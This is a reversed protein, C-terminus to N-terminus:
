LGEYRFAGWVAANEYQRIMEIQATRLAAAPAAGAILARHFAILLQATGTDEVEWLSGVVGAAGAALFSQALGSFGSTRAATRSSGSCASLIVLSHPQLTSMALQEAFLLGSDGASDPALVLHSRGPQDNLFRAHGAFHLIDLSALRSRLATPTARTGVLHVPRHYLQAIRDLEAEAAPLDLRGALVISSAPSFAPAVDPRIHDAGPIMRLTYGEILFRNPAYGPLLAFPVAHLAKDPVILLESVSEEPRISDLLLARLAQGTSAFAISDSGTRALRVFRDVLETVHTNSVAIAHTRITDHSIARILLRDDLLAYEVLMSTRPLRQAAERSALPASETGAPDVSAPHLRSRALYGFATEANGRDYELRILADYTRTRAELFSARLQLDMTSRSELEILAVAQALDASAAAVNGISNQTNSRATLVRILNIPNKQDRFHEVSATFRRIAAPADTSASALGEVFDLDAAVRQRLLTDRVAAFFARAEGIHVSAAAHRGLELESRAVEIRGEIPDSTRATRDAIHLGETHIALMAHPFGARGAARGFIVMTNHLTTTVGKQHLQKTAAFWRQFAADEQGLSNLAEAVLSQMTAQHQLEGAQRYLHEASEFYPLATEVRGQRGHSLGFLYNARAALPPSRRAVASQLFARVADDSRAYDGAFQDVAARYLAPYWEFESGASRLAATATAFSGGAAAPKGSAYFGRGDAYAAHGVALQQLTAKKASSIHTLANYVISDGSRATLWPVVAAAFELTRESDAIRGSSHARGWEGLVDVTIFERAVQPAADILERVDEAIIAHGQQWRERLKTWEAGSQRAPTALRRQHSKAADDWAADPSAGTYKAWGRAASHYLGLQELVVARNFLAEEYLSDRALSRDLNALAQFLDTISQRAQSRLLYAVALDNPLAPALTDLGAAEELLALARELPRADAGATAIDILASAHLADISRQASLQRRIEIALDALAAADTSAADSRVGSIRAHLSASIRSRVEDTLGPEGRCAGACFMAILLLSILTDFRRRPQLM